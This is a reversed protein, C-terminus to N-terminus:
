FGLDAWKLGNFILNNLNCTSWIEDKCEIELGKIKTTPIVFCKHTHLYLDKLGMWVWGFGDLGMTM